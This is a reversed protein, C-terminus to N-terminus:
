KAPLLLRRVAAALEGTSVSGEYKAKIRGDSGVLFVWPESELGWERMWRNYGLAPKNDRYVEVHIFRIRTRALERRIKTVVDVVPGCTRSECFRPTAFTVVFPRHAALSGAVSYRLLARDPPTRTTLRAVDGHTSALTPTRSQFAKAGVPLSATRRKVDLVYIAQIPTGGVPEAVLWYRGPRRIRLRAVYIRSVDGAAPESIGPVGIPELVATTREFPKATRGNAVWLRAQPREVPKADRRIVLFPLRISGVAFDSAGAVLAVDEGPRQYLAELSGPPAAGGTSSTHSGCGAALLVAASAVIV